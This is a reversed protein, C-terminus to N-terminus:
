TPGTLACEAEWVVCGTCIKELEKPQGSQKCAPQWMGFAPVAESSRAVPPNLVCCHYEAKNQRRLPVVPM